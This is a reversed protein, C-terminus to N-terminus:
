EIILGAVREVVKDLPENTTPRFIRVNKYAISKEDEMGLHWPGYTNPMVVAVKQGVAGAFHVLATSVSIIGDCAAAISLWSDLDNRFDIKQFFYVEQKKENLYKIEQSVDGYQLNVYMADKKFIPMWNELELQKTKRQIAWFGGKWSIGIIPRGAAKKKLVERYKSYLERNAILFPNRGKEFSKVDPRYRRPLSGLPIYGNKKIPTKEWHFTAGNGTIILNPFSRKLIPTM